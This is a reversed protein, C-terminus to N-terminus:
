QLKFIYALEQLCLVMKTALILSIPMSEEVMSRFRVPSFCPHLQNFTDEQLGYPSVRVEPPPRQSIILTSGVHFPNLARRFPIGFPGEGKLRTLVCPSSPIGHVLITKEGCPVSDAQVKIKVKTAKLVM